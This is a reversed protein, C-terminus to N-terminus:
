EESQLHPPLEQPADIAYWLGEVLVSADSAHDPSLEVNLRGSVEQGAVEEPHVVGRTGQFTGHPHHMFVSVWSLSDEDAQMTDYLTRDAIAQEILSQRAVEYPRTELSHPEWEISWGISDADLEVGLVKADSRRVYAQGQVTDEVAGQMTIVFTGRDLDDLDTDSGCGTLMAALLISGCLAGLFRITM